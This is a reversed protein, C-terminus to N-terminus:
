SCYFTYKKLKKQLCFDDEHLGWDKREISTLTRQIQGIKDTFFFFFFFFFRRVGNYSLNPTKPWYRLFVGVAFMCGIINTEAHDVVMPDVRLLKTGEPM